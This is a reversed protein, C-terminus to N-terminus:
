LANNLNTWDIADAFNPKDRLKTIYSIWGADCASVHTQDYGWTTDRWATIIMAPFADILDDRPCDILLHYHLRTAKGGELIPIVNVRKNHRQASPGYIRKNLLNLFHRLNQEADIKTLAIRSRGRDHDIYICQKLTLTVEYPHKWRTYDITERFAKQISQASTTM